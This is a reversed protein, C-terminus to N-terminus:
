WFPGGHGRACGRCLRGGFGGGLGDGRGRRGGCCLLGAERGRGLWADGQGAAVAGGVGRGRACRGGGARDVRALDRDGDEYAAAILKWRGGTVGSWTEGAGLEAGLEARVGGGDFGDAGEGPLEIEGDGCRRILEGGAGQLEGAGAGIDLAGEADGEGILREAGIAEAGALARDLKGGGEGAEDFGDEAEVVPGLGRGLEAYGGGRGGALGPGLAM